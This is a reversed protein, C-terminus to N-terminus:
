SATPTLLAKASKIWIDDKLTSWRQKLTAADDPDIKFDAEAAARAM